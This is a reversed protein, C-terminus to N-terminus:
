DRGSLLEQAAAVDRGFQAVMEDGGDYREEDRIRDHLEVTLETRALNGVAEIPHVEVVERHSRLTPRAGIHVVGRFRGEGSTVMAAYVGHRPLLQASPIGLIATPVGQTQGGGDGAIVTGRIAFPRGLLEAATTVDGAQLVQRVATSSFPAGEGVLDLSDVEFGYNPGERTLLDVDGAREYGFRFDGGVVILGAHFIGAVIREIFVEPVMQRLDADFRLFGVIDVGLAALLELKQVRSTILQPAHEPASLTLPHGDFTVVGVPRGQARAQLEALIAQHGRHIGDYVGITIATEPADISWDRYDGELVKM